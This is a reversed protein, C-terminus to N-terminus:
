SRLGASRLGAAASRSLSLVTRLRRGTLARGTQGSRGAADHQGVARDDQGSTVCTCRRTRQTSSRCPSCRPQCRRTWCRGSVPRHGRPGSLRLQGAARWSPSGSGGCRRPDLGHVVLSARCALLSPASAPRDRPIACHRATPAEGRRASGHSRDPRVRAGVQHETVPSRDGALLSGGLM